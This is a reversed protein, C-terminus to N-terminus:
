ACILPAACHPFCRDATAWYLRIFSWDTNTLSASPLSVKPSDFAAMDYYSGSGMLQADAEHLLKLLSEKAKPDGMSRFAWDLEGNPGAVFGDLSASMKLKRKRKTATSTAM